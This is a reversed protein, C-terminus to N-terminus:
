RRDKKDQKQTLHDKKPTATPKKRLIRLEVGHRGNHCILAQEQGPYMEKVIATFEEWTEQEPDHICTVIEIDMPDIHSSLTDTYHKHM